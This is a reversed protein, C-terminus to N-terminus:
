PLCRAAGCLHPAVILVSEFRVVNFTADAALLFKVSWKIAPWLFV